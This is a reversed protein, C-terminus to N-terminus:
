SKGVKGVLLKLDPNIREFDSGEVYPSKMLEAHRPTQEIRSARDLIQNANAPPQLGEFFPAAPSVNYKLMISIEHDSYDGTAARKRWEPLQQIVEEARQRLYFSDRTDLDTTGIIIRALCGLPTRKLKAAAVIQDATIGGGEIQRVIDASKPYYQGAKPDNIHARIAVKIAEMPYNELGMAYIKVGMEALKPKQYYDSLGDLIESLEALKDM